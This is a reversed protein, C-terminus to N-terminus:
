GPQQLAGQGPAQVEVTDEKMRETEADQVPGHGSATLAGGREAPHGEQVAPEEFRRRELPLMTRRDPGVRSPALREVVHELSEMERYALVVRALEDRGVHQPPHELSHHVGDVTVGAAAVVRRCGQD